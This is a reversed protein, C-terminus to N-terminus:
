FEFQFLESYYSHVDARRQPLSEIRIIRGGETHM